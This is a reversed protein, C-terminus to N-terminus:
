AQRRPQATCANRVPTESVETLAAAPQDDPAITARYVRANDPSNATSSNWLLQFTNLKQTTRYNQSVFQAKTTQETHSHEPFELSQQQLQPNLANSFLLETLHPKLFLQPNATPICL